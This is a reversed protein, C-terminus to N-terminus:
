VSARTDLLLTTVDINPMLTPHSKPMIKPPRNNETAREWRYPRCRGLNVARELQDFMSERVIYM